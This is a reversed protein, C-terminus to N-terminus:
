VAVWETGNHYRIETCGYDIGYEDLPAFPDSDFTTCLGQFYINGDGDYLRFAKVPSSLMEDTWVKSTTFWGDPMEEIRCDNIYWAM